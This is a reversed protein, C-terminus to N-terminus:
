WLKRYAQFDVSIYQRQSWFDLLRYEEGMSKKTYSSSAQLNTHHFHLFWWTIKSHTSLILDHFLLGLFWQPRMVPIYTWLFFLWISFWFTHIYWSHWYSLKTVGWTLRRSNVCEFINLIQRPSKTLYINYTGM